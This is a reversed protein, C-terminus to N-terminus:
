SVGIHLGNSIKNFIDIMSYPKELYEHVGLRNLKWKELFSIYGSNIIISIKDDINKRIYHATEVGNMKPMELDLLIIDPKLGNQLKSIAEEGNMAAITTIDAKKLIQDIVLQNMENDDVNLVVRDKLFPFLKKYDEGPM